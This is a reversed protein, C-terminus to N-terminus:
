RSSPHRQSQKAKLMERAESPRSAAARVGLCLWGSAENPFGGREFLFHARKLIQPFMKDPQGLEWMLSIIGLGM